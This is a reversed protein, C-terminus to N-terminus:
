PTTMKPSQSEPTSGNQPSLEANGAAENLHKKEHLRMHASQIFTANCFRCNYPRVKSHTREHIRLHSSQMFAKDCLHCKYPRMGTHIREHMHLHSSQRFTKPCFRCSFPRVQTHILEHQRLHSSQTFRKGCISCAYPRDQNHLRMHIHLNNLKSFVKGCLGCKHDLVQLNMNHTQYHKDLSSLQRFVDGCILCLHATRCGSPGGKQTQSRGVYSHVNFDAKPGISPSQGSPSTMGGRSNHRKVHEQLLRENIFSQHCVQCEHDGSMQSSQRQRMLTEHVEVHRVLADVNDFVDGCEMCSVNNLNRTPSPTQSPTVRPSSDEVAEMDDPGRYIDESGYQEAEHQQVHKLLLDINAFTVGCEVCCCNEEATSQKQEPLQPYYGEREHGHRNTQYCFVRTSHSMDSTGDSSEQIVSFQDNADDTQFSSPIEGSSSGSGSAEAAGDTGRESRNMDNFPTDTTNTYFNQSGDEVRSRNESSENDESHDGVNVDHGEDM